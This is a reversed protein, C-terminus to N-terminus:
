PAAAELSRRRDDAQLAETFEELDGQLIRDLQHV